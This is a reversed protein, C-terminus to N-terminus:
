DGFVLWSSSPWFLDLFIPLIYLTKSGTLLSGLRFMSFDFEHSVHPFAKVLPCKFTQGWRLVDKTIITFVFSM